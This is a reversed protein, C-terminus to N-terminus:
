ENNEIRNVRSKNKNEYKFVNPTYMAGFLATYLPLSMSNREFSRDAGSLNMGLSEPCAPLLQNSKSV